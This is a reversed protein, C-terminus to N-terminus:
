NGGKNNKSKKKNLSKQMKKREKVKDLVDDIAFTNLDFKIKPKKM